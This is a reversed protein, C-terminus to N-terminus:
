KLQDTCFDIREQKSANDVVGQPTGTCQEFMERGTHRSRFFKDGWRRKLSVPVGPFRTGSAEEIVDIRSVFAWFAEKSAHDPNRSLNEFTHPILFGIAHAPETVTQPRYVVQYYGTPVRLNKAVAKIEHPDADQRPKLMHGKPFAAFNEKIQTAAKTLTMGPPYIKSRDLIGNKYVAFKKAPFEDFMTGTVVHIPGEDIAWTLVQRELFQWIGRNLGAAQPSMNAMTFTQYTGCIHWSFAQRPAIHGADHGSHEFAKAPLKNGDLMLDPHFPDAASRCTEADPSECHFYRKAKDRSYVNCKDPGYNAPDLKYAAWRPAFQQPWYEVAFFSAGEDRYCLHRNPSASTGESGPVATKPAHDTTGGIFQDACRDLASQGFGSAPLAVLIAAAFFGLTRAM